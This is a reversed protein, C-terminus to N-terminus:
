SKSVIPYEGCFCLREKPMNETKEPMSCGPGFVDNDSVCWGEIIYQYICDLILNQFLM